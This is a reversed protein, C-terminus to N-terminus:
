RENPQRASDNPSDVAQRSVPQRRALLNHGSPILPLQYVSDGAVAPRHPQRTWDGAQPRWVEFHNPYVYGPPLIPADPSAIPSAYTTPCDLRSRVRAGLANLLRPSPDATATSDRLRLRVRLM